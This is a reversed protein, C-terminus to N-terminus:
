RTPQPLNLDRALGQRIDLAIAENHIFHAVAAKFTRLVRLEDEALDLLDPRRTTLEGALAQVYGAPTDAM